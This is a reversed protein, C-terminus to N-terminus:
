VNPRQPPHSIRIGICTCTLGHRHCREVVCDTLRLCPSCIRHCRMAVATMARQIASDGRLSAARRACPPLRTLAHGGTKPRREPVPRRPTADESATSLDAAPRAGLLAAAAPQRRDTGKGDNLRLTADPQGHRRREPGGSTCRRAARADADAAATCPPDTSTAAAEHRSRGNSGYRTPPHKCQRETGALSAHMTRCRRHARRAVFLMASHLPELGLGASL